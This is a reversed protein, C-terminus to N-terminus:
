IFLEPYELTPNSSILNLNQAFASAPAFQQLPSKTGNKYLYWGSARTVGRHICLFYEGTTNDVHLGIEM